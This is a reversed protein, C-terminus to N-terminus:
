RVRGLYRDLWALSEGILQERPVDHGGEYVVYRKHEPATGILEFFPRQATETPYFFDYKGNLMVVPTKIRPLYHLPDVEPRSREMTFGAVYLVNAKIRPEVAPIIGGMNGGWSHGFYAFRTTDVDPRTSLYDLTRRVDKVWMVVHDRWFISPTPLDSTLSDAREFTSKLIPLVVLRGSKQLFALRPDLVGTSPGARLANSGPFIVVSQYPPRGSRPVYVWAAMREGYATTFSVRERIFDEATSDREELRVDLQKPDYDFQPLFGAFV